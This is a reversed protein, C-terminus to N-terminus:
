YNSFQKINRVTESIVLTEVILPIEKNGHVALPRGNQGTRDNHGGVFAAGTAVDQVVGIERRRMEDTVLDIFEETALTDFCFFFIAM